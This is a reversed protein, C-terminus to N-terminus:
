RASAPSGAVVASVEEDQERVSALASEPVPVAAAAACRAPLVAAAEVAARDRLCCDALDSPLAAWVVMTKTEPAVIVEPHVEVWAM